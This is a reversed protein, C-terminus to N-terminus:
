QDIGARTDAGADTRGDGAWWASSTADSGSRARFREDSADSAATAAGARNVGPAGGAAALAGSSRESGRMEPRSADGADSTDRASGTIGAGARIAREGAPPPGRGFPAAAVGGAGTWTVIPRISTRALV